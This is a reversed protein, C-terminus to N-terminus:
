SPEEPWWRLGSKVLRAYEAIRFGRQYHLPMMAVDMRRHKAYFYALGSVTGIANAASRPHPLNITVAEDAAAFRAGAGILRLGLELDLYWGGHADLGEDLGGVRDLLEKSLSHNGLRMALWGTSVEHCRGSAVLREIDQFERGGHGSLALLVDFRERVDEATVPKEDLALPSRAEHLWSLEPSSRAAEWAGPAQQATTVDLFVRTHFMFRCRGIVLDAPTSRVALHSELLGPSPVEDDLALLVVPARAAAVGANYGGGLGIEERRVVRPTYGLDWTPIVESLVPDSRNDVVVVEYEDHPLTQRGFGTLTLRLRSTGHRTDSCYSPLVVSIRPQSM